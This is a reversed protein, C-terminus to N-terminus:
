CQANNNGRNEAATGLGVQQNPLLSSFDTSGNITIFVSTVEMSAGIMAAPSIIDMNKFVIVALQMLMLLFSRNEM